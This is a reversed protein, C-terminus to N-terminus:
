LKHKRAEGDEEEISLFPLGMSKRAEEWKRRQRQEGRGEARRVMGEQWSSTVHTGRGDWIRSQHVGRGQGSRPTWSESVWWKGVELALEHKSVHLVVSHSLSGMSGVEEGFGLAKSVVFLSNRDSAYLHACAHLNHKEPPLFGIPRYFILNTKETPYKTANHSAMDLTRMELGPFNQKQPHQAIHRWYRAQM